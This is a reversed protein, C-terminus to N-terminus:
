GTSTSRRSSTRTSSSYTPPAPHPPEPLNAHPEFSGPNAPTDLSNYLADLNPRSAEAPQAFTKVFALAGGPADKESFGDEGVAGPFRHM